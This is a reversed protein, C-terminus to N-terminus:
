DPFEVAGSDLDAPRLNLCRNATDCKACITLMGLHQKPYVGQMSSINLWVEDNPWGGVNPPDFPVQGLTELFSNRELQLHLPLINNGPEVHCVV